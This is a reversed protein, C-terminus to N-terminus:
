KNVIKFDSNSVEIITVTVVGVGVVGILIKLNRQDSPSGYHVANGFEILFDSFSPNEYAQLRNHVGELAEAVQEPLLRNTTVLSPGVSHSSFATECSLVLGPRENQILLTSVEKLSIYSGDPGRVLGNESHGVLIFLQNKSGSEIEKKVQNKFPMKGPRDIIKTNNIESFRKYARKMQSLAEKAPVDKNWVNKISVLDQPMVALTSINDFKAGLMAQTIARSKDSNDGVTIILPSKVKKLEQMLYTNSITEDSILILDSLKANYLKSKTSKLSSTMATSLDITRGSSGKTQKFYIARKILPNNTSQQISPSTTSGKLLNPPLCDNNIQAYTFWPYILLYSVFLVKRLSDNQSALQFINTKM